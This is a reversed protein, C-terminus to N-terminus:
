RWWWTHHGPGQDGKHEHHKENPEEQESAIIGSLVAEEAYGSHIITNYGSPAPLGIKSNILPNILFALHGGCGTAAPASFTNDVQIHETLEAFEGNDKLNSLGFQGKIPTNPPPPSTTGTTFNFVIPNTNSGIYCEKGLLPNELHIRVPLTLGVGEELIENRRSVHIQSTPAALETTENVATFWHNNLIAKCTGRRIRGLLGKDKIENCDIMSSLGGPVPQPTPSLTEGNLAAVFTETESETPTKPPTFIIGAQLTVQNVIPVTLEGLTTVGGTIQSYLCLNVGTTFRPCQKFVAFDGTPRKALVPSVVGLGAVLVISVVGAVLTLRGRRLYRVVGDKRM